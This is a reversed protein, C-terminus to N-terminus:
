ISTAIIKEIQPKSEQLIFIEDYIRMSFLITCVRMYYESMLNIEDMVSTYVRVAVHEAKM